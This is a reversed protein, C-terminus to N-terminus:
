REITSGIGIVEHDFLDGTRSTTAFRTEGNGHWQNASARTRHQDAVEPYISTKTENFNENAAM